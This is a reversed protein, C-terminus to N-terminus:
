MKFLLSEQSEELLPFENAGQINIWIQDQSMGRDVKNKDKRAAQPPLQKTISTTLKPPTETLISENVLLGPKTQKNTNKRM